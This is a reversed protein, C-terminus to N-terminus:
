RGPRRSSGAGWGGARAEDGAANRGHAISGTGAIVVVGAGAGFAAEMAVVDDGVVDVQAPTIGAIMTRLKPAIDSSSVGAVGICVRALTSPEIGADACAARIGHELAARAREEGVTQIKCSAATARGLVAAEDGVACETKSGGADIGLFYM